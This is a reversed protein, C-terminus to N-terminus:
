NYCHDRVHLLWPSGTGYEIIYQDANNCRSCEFTRLDFGPKAPEIRALLRFVRIAARGLLSPLDSLHSMKANCKECIRFPSTSKDSSAMAPRNRSFRSDCSAM